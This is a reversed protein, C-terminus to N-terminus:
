KLNGIKEMYLESRLGLTEKILQNRLGLYEERLLDYLFSDWKRGNVFVNKRSVGVKKFGCAELAKHARDHYEVSWAECREINLQNFCIELLALTAQKGLGREWNEKDGIYLGIDAGQVNGWIEKTIRSVGIAERTAALSVLQRLNSPDRTWDEYQKELQVLSTFNVPQTRSFMMLESDNEWEQIARLDDKEIPRLYLDGFEFMDLGRQQHLMWLNVAKAALDKGKKGIIIIGSV